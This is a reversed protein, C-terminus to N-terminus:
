WLQSTFKKFFHFFLSLDMIILFLSIIFNNHFKIRGLNERELDTKMSLLIKTIIKILFDTAQPCVWFFPYKWDFLNKELITKNNM